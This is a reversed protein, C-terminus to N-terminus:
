KPWARIREPEVIFLKGRLENEEIEKFFKVTREIIRARSMREIYIVVVGRSSEIDFRIINGFDRDFTLLIQSTKLIYKFIEEDPAEELEKDIAREVEVEMKRLAEVVDTHVCQDAFVRM